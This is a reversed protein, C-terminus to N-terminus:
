FVHVSSCVMAFFFGFKLQGHFNGIFYDAYEGTYVCIFLYECEYFKPVTGDDSCNVMAETMM